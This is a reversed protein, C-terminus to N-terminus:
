KPCLAPYFASAMSPLPHISPFAHSIPLSKAGPHLAPVPLIHPFTSSLLLSTASAHSTNTSVGSNGYAGANSWGRGHNGRSPPSTFHDNYGGYGGQGGRGGYHAGQPTMATSARAAHQGQQPSTLNPALFPNPGEKGRQTFKSSARVLAMEDDSTPDSKSKSSSQNDASSNDGAASSEPSYLLAGGGSEDSSSPSDTM